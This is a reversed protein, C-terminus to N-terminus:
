VEGKAAKALRASLKKNWEELDVAAEACIARLRRIEERAADYTELRDVSAGDEALASFEDDSILNVRHLENRQHRCLDWMRRMKPHLIWDDFLARLRTAENLLRETDEVSLRDGALLARSCERLEAETPPIRDSM